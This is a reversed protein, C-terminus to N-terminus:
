KVYQVAKLEKELYTHLSNLKITGEKILKRILYADDKNRFCREVDKTPLGGIDTWLTGKTDLAVKFTLITAEIRKKKRPM